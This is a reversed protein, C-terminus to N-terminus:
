ALVREELTHLTDPEMIEDGLSRRVKEDFPNM